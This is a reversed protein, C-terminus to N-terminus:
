SEYVRLVYQIDQRCMPCSPGDKLEVRKACNCCCVLHGCPVFAANRRNKLCIVCLQEDGMEGPAKDGSGIQVTNNKNDGQHFRQQAGMREKVSPIEPEARIYRLVDNLVFYGGSEQPALFFSQTFRRKATNPTTFSGTLVVFVGDGHSLQADMNELEASCGKLETSLFYEKIGRTTTISTMGGDLGPRGLISEDHYFKHSDEPSTILISYYQQTFVTGVVHPDLYRGMSNRAQTAM